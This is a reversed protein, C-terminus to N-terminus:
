YGCGVTNKRLFLTTPRVPDFNPHPSPPQPAQVTISDLHVISLLTICKATFAQRVGSQATLPMATVVTSPIPLVVVM